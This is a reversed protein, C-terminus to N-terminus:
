ASARVARAGPSPAFVYIALGAALAASFGLFLRGYTADAALGREASLQVFRGSLWQVLGSGGIFVFNVFTVGRGLLRTPMFARAHAMLVAYTLGFGGVATLLTVALVTDGAGFLGLAAFGAATTAFGILCSARVGIWREVPGYALSGLSMAAAMALVANALPIPALGHVQSLYPAVWLSRTAIVVAYSVATIPLLPWIARIRAIAALGSLFSGEGAPAAPEPPPDRVVVAALGVALGTLGAIALLTPRWGFRSAAWALPSTGVLNGLSSLGILSASLIAFREPPYLRAFLYMGAMLVPACGIGILAMAALAEGYTRAVSLAAAGFVAALMTYCLTRRPGYRDLAYGVPLQALAFGVFWVASVAGLEGAGLGLDRALDQAVVALFSRYFQSFVYVVLLALYIKM